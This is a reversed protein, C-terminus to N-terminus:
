AVAAAVAPDVAVFRRSMAQDCQLASGVHDQRASYKWRTVPPVAEVLGAGTMGEAHLFRLLSRLAAATRPVAGPRRAALASVFGSVEGATM